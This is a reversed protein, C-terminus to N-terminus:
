KSTRAAYIKVGCKEIIWAAFLFFFFCGVGVPMLIVILPYRGPPFNDAVFFFTSVFGGGFLLFTVVLLIRGVITLKKIPNPHREEMSTATSQSQRPFRALTEIDLAFRDSYIGGIGDFKSGLRDNPRSLRTALAFEEFRM